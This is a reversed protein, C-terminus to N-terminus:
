SAFTPEWVEVTTAGNLPAALRPQEDPLWLLAGEGPLPHEASHLLEGSNTDWEQVVSASFPHRKKM